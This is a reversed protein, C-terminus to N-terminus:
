QRPLKSRAPSESERRGPTITKERRARIRPLLPPAHSVVVIGGLSVIHHRRDVEDDCGATFGDPIQVGEDVIVKRLRTGRGVQVDPMLVSDHIEASGDIRVGACCATNMIGDPIGDSSPSGASLDFPRSAQLFDMNAQYYGDITGVDRWYHPTGSEDDYFNYAFVRASDILSPVVHYGFDYGTGSYCHRHLAEVLTEVKFVYIGMSALAAEPRQPMPTPHFPKEVFRRVRFDDGVEVVGFGSAQSLPYQVTSLTLDADTELHFRILKRYDMQYVHDGALILVHQANELCPLNQYVADATGRYRNGNVPSLCRFDRQWKRRVHAAVQDRRYQTLLICDNLGSNRCNSLTFDILRWPGFAVLPKPRSLTLPFLSNGQGGALVLVPIRQQEPKM